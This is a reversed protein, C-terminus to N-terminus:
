EVIHQFEKPSVGYLSKFCTGFYSNSGFGVQVAIESISLDSEKLLQAASELRINRIMEAPSLDTVAKLKKYFSARSMGLNRCIMDIDLDPNTFNQKVLEIYRSMFLEDNSEVKIGLGQLSFKKGYMKKLNERSDLINRIRIKLLSLRFPKTLYDDAGAAFGEEVYTDMNRATLLIVPIHCLRIDAKIQRCLDVGSLEPMMVDSVLLDPMTDELMDWAVQGNVATHVEFEQKLHRYLYDLVEPNDEVILLKYKKGTRNASAAIQEAAEEVQKEAEVPDSTLITGSEARPLSVAEPKYPMYVTVSLGHPIRRNAYIVGGHQEVISRTLSLGVGSGAIKGHLDEKFQYFPEFIKELKDEGDVGIGNDAVEIQLWRSHIACSDKAFLRRRAEEALGDTEVIRVGVTVKGKEATFKLANSLINFLAQEMRSKDYFVPLVQGPSHLELSIGRKEALSNFDSYIDEMFVQFDFPLLQLSLTGSQQKQIDMLSNVLALLRESNRRILRLSSEEGPAFWKKQQLDDLPNMILTLPTRFEHAIHMFFRNRELSLEKLKEQELREIHLQQELRRKRKLYLLYRGCVAAVILVYILYAWWRLWVPPVVTIKLTRGTENWVGDNNSAKVRFVYSGPALNTYFAERRNGVMNWKEDVGELKYAYQNQLPYLYNLATYEISINTRNHKLIIENQLDLRSSLIKNDDGPVIKENNIKLDTFLVEPMDPNETLLSPDILLIGNAAPLYLKGDNSVTGTYPTFEQRDMDSLMFRIIKDKGKSFRYLEHITVFWIQGTKDKLIKYVMEDVLGDQKAYRRVLKFDADFVFVGMGNTSVWLYGNEEVHFSTVQVHDHKGLGFDEAAIKRSEGSVQDRYLFGSEKLGFLLKGPSLEHIVYIPEQSSEGMRVTHMSDELFFVTGYQPSNTPIWLREHSDRFITYIDGYGFNYLLRFKRNKISFVFVEGDHTGCYIDDGELFITKIINRNFFKDEKQFIKYFKREGNRPNYFMLGSGETAFWMNGERDEEGKGVIGTLDDSNLVTFRYNYRNYYSVGGAYTGVWLNGKRDKCLAHVSYHSLSGPIEPDVPIDTQEFTQKNLLVLGHFTGLLMYEENWDIIDRVNEAKAVAEMTQLAPDYRYIQSREQIIWLKGSRDLCQSNIRGNEKLVGDAGSSTKFLINLNRDTAYFGQTTGFYLNGEAGERIDRIPQGAFEKSAVFPRFTDGLRDYEFNDNLTSILLRNDSTTFVHNIYNSYRSKNPLYYRQIKRTRYDIRNIGMITGVWLNKDRDQTISLIYNDSLTHEDDLNKTFVEYGYGDWKNLGGYTGIWIYGDADQFISSVTKQSLGSKTDLHTFFFDTDGSAVCDIAGFFAFFLSLILCKM